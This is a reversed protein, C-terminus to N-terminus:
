LKALQNIGCIANYPCHKDPCQKPLKFQSTTSTSEIQQFVKGLLVQTEQHMTANYPITTVNLQDTKQSVQVYAFELQEPTTISLGLESALTFVAFLYIRTQWDEQPLLPTATGTKWDVILYRETEIQEASQSRENRLVQEREGQPLPNPHPTFDSLSNQKSIIRDIRGYLWHGEVCLSFPWESAIIPATLWDSKTLIDWAQKEDASLSPLLHEIPLNKAQYDLMTHITQGLKFNQPNSPWHLQQIIDLEFRKQCKDWTKLTHVTHTLGAKTQTM